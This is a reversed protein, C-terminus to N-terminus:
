KYYRNSKRRFKSISMSEADAIEKKTAWRKIESQFGSNWDFGAENDSYSPNGLKTLGSIFPNDSLAKGSLAANKGNIFDESAM